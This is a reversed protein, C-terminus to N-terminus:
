KNIKLYSHSTFSETAHKSINFLTSMNTWIFPTPIMVSTGLSMASWLIDERQESKKPAPVYAFIKYIYCIVYDYCIM